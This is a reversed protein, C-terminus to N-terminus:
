RKFLSRDIVDAMARYGDPNLHLHDGSDFAALLNAPEAPDRVALDMDIVADFRGSTRIWANVTLRATEHAPNRSYMSRGFPLIPVGYVRIDHAHAKDIFKGFAAILDAAVTPSNSVGIDNVGELVILWRPASQGTVDRDFRTLAPPGLGGTLVANGGLGENLVSIGATSANAILRRALDDTWRDNGDTTSGRGDTISDGLVIVEAGDAVVDIGTLVYWHTAKAAQQLTTAAVAEGAQLYSTSRSGPHGTVAAPMDGFWTTVALDAMPAVDFDLPDSSVAEGAPITVSAGGHFMVAKGTGPQIADAGASVALQASRITLPGNGFANSFRLRVQKGAITTRVVQRLTNSALGPAPPLNAPETLQPACGWTGVWHSEAALRMQGFLAIAVLCAGLRVRKM